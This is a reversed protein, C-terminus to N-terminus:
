RLSRDAVFAEEYLMDKFTEIGGLKLIPGIQSQMCLMAQYKQELDEGSVVFYLDCEQAPVVVPDGDQMMVLERPVLQDMATQWEPTNVNHLVRMSTGAAAASAWRSVAMHDPHFTGGDPGFTLITDPKVDDIVARVRAVAEDPDIDACGGDPYDFWAHETVGLVALSAALEDTRIAALEPGNPWRSEDTSGLEGRTATVCVVRQGNRVANAMISGCCYGEDDPHAWLSLITGLDTIDLTQM